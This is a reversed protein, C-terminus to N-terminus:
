GLQRRRHRTSYGRDIRGARLGVDRRGACSCRSAAPSRFSKGPTNGDNSSASGGSPSGRGAPGRDDLISVVRGTAVLSGKRGPARSTARSLRTLQKSAARVCPARPQLAPMGPAPLATGPILDRRALIASPSCRSLGGSVDQGVVNVEGPPRSVDV